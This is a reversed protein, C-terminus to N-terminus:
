RRAEGSTNTVGQRSSQNLRTTVSKTPSELVEVTPHGAIDLSISQVDNGDIPNLVTLCYCRRFSTSSASLFANTLNSLDNVTTFHGDTESAIRRLAVEDIAQNAVGVVHIRIGRKKCIALMPAFHSSNQDDKGDTFLIISCNGHKTSVDKVAEILASYIATGGNATLGALPQTAINADITWPGLSQVDSAFRYLRFIVPNAVRRVFESTAKVVQQMMKPEISVSTDLLVAIYTPQKDDFTTVSLRHTLARNGAIQVILDHSRLGDVFRHERDAMDFYIDISNCRRQVDLVTLASDAGVTTAIPLTALQPELEAFDITFKSAVSLARELTPRRTHNSEKVRDALRVLDRVHDKAEDTLSDRASAIESNLAENRKRELTLEVESARLQNRLRSLWFLGVPILALSVALLGLVIWRTFRGKRESQHVEFLDAETLSLEYEMTM